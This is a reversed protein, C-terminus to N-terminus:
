AANDWAWARTAGRHLRLRGVAVLAGDDRQVLRRALEAAQGAGLRELRQLQELRVVLLLDVADVQLALDTPEARDGRRLKVPAVGLHGLGLLLAGGRRRVRRARLPRAAIAAAADAALVLVAFLARLLRLELRPVLLPDPAM